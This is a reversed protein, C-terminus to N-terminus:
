KEFCCDNGAAIRTVEDGRGDSINLQKSKMIPTTNRAFYNTKLVLQM